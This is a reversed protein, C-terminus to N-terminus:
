SARLGTTSEATFIARIVATGRMIEPHSEWGIKAIISSVAREYRKKNTFSAEEELDKTVQEM